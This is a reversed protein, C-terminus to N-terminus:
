QPTGKKHLSEIAHRCAAAAYQQYGDYEGSDVVDQCLRACDKQTSLIVLEAFRQLRQLDVTEIEPFCPHGSYLGAEKAWVIIQNVMISKQM